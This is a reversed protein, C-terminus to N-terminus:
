SVKQVRTIRQDPSLRAETRRIGYAAVQSMVIFFLGILTYLEVFRYHQNGLERAAGLLEAVGIAALLPTEKFMGVLYNGLAPVIPPIAQPIVINRYVRYTSFNDAYAKPRMKRAHPEQVTYMLGNRKAYAIAEEKSDFWLHLQSAMDSSSTWGMLPEVSRASEPEHELLWRSENGGGSQMANKPPQYIRVQM